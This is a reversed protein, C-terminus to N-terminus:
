AALLMRTPLLMGPKLLWFEHTGILVREKLPLGADDYDGMVDAMAARDAPKPLDFCALHNAQAIVDGPIWAPRQVLMIAAKHLGRGRTLYYKLYNGRAIRRISFLPELAYLEDILVCGPGEAHFCNFLLENWDDAEQLDPPPVYRIVPARPGPIVQAPSEVVRNAPFRFNRNPDVIVLWGRYPAPVNDGMGYSAALNRAFYSKGSGSTGAICMRDAGEEGNDLRPALARVDLTGIRTVGRRRSDRGKNATPFRLSLRM